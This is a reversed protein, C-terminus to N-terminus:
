ISSVVEELPSSFGNLRPNKNIGKAIYPLVDRIVKATLGIKDPFIEQLKPLFFLSKDSSYYYHAYHLIRIEQKITNSGFEFDLTEQSLPPINLQYRIRIGLTNLGKSYPYVGLRAVLASPSFLISDEKPTAYSSVLFGFVMGGANAVFFDGDRSVFKLNDVVWDENVVRVKRFDTRSIPMYRTDEKFSKM